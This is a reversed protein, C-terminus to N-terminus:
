VPSLPLSRRPEFTFSAGTSLRTVAVEGVEPAAQDRRVVTLSWTADDGEGEVEVDLHPDVARVAAQLATVRGPGCLGVWGGDAWADSPGVTLADDDVEGRTYAHPNFLPLFSLNLLHMQLCVEDAIRM